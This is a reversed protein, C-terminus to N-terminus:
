VQHVQRFSLVQIVVGALFCRILVYTTLTSELRSLIIPGCMAVCLFRKMSYLILAHRRGARGTGDLIRQPSYKNWGNM